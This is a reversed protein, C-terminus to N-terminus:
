NGSFLDLKVSFSISVHSCCLTYSPYQRVWTGAPLVQSSVPIQKRLVTSCPLQSLEFTCLCQLETLLLITNYLTSAQLETLLLITNYLTSAQLETLLLITNYLTSAQLETLLLIPPM